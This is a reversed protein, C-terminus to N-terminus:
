IQLTDISKLIPIENKPKEIPYDKSNSLKTILSASFANLTDLKIPHQSFLATWDQKRWQYRIKKYRICDLQYFYWTYIFRTYNSWFRIEDLFWPRKEVWEHSLLDYHATNNWSNVKKKKVQDKRETTKIKLLYKLKFNQNLCLLFTKKVFSMRERTQESLRLPVASHTLVKISLTSM